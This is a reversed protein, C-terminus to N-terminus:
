GVLHPAGDVRLGRPAAAIVHPEHERELHEAEVDLRAAALGIRREELPEIRIAAVEDGQDGIQRGPTREARENAGKALAGVKRGLPERARRRHGAHAQAVVGREPARAIGADHDGVRGEVAIRMVVEGGVRGIPEAVGLHGADHLAQRLRDLAEGGIRVHGSNLSLGRKPQFPTQGWKRPFHPRDWKTGRKAIVAIRVQFMWYPLPQSPRMSRARIAFTARAMPSASTSHKWSTARLSGAIASPASWASSSAASKGSWSPTKPAPSLRSEAPPRRRSNPLRTKERRGTSCTKRCRSGCGASGPMLCMCRWAISTTTSVSPPGSRM